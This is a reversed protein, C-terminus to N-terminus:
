SHKNTADTVIATAIVLKKPPLIVTILLKAPLSKPMLLASIVQIFAAVEYTLRGRTSTDEPLALKICLKVAPERSSNKPLIASRNPRLLMNM